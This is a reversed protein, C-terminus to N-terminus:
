CVPDNRIGPVTVGTQSDPIPEKPLVFVTKRGTGGGIGRGSCSSIANLPSLPKNDLLGEFDTLEAGDGELDPGQQLPEGLSGPEGGVDRLSGSEGGAGGLDKLENSVGGPVEHEASARGPRGFEGGAVEPDEHEYGAGELNGPENAAEELDEHGDGAEGLEGPKGGVGGLDEHKDSVVALGVRQQLVM